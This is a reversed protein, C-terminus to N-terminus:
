DMIFKHIDHGDMNKYKVIFLMDMTIFYQSLKLTVNM